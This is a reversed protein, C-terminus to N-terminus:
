VEKYISIVKLTALKIDGDAGVGKRVKMNERYMEKPERCIDRHKILYVKIYYM